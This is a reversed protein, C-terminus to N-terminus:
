YNTAVVQAVKGPIMTKLLNEIGNKLTVTASPCGSCAGQLLVKVTQSHEDYSEFAINGGDAAVAPKIHNELIDIIEKSVEDLPAENLSTQAPSHKREIAATEDVLTNGKAIFERIFTRTENGVESWAVTDNKTISIYNESFFVEKVFPFQFLHSALPADQAAGLDKYEFTSTFLRKNSVFKLVEPNPTVETYLEVPVTKQHSSNETFLVGGNNLFSTIQAKVEEQVEKWQVISFRELAIFNASIFVRKIFPLHFLQQVLPSDKAEDINNYQHSENCLISDTSLKIIHQNSTAEIQFSIESM